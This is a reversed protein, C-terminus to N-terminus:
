RRGEPAADGGAGAALAHILPTDLRLSQSPFAIVIGEAAFRRVISLLVDQRTQMYLAYDPVLMWYVIEYRWASDQIAKLHIRDVRVNPQAAILERLLAPIREATDAATAFEVDLTLVVRRESMRKYNRLRAKLLDSNSFVLQEGTDARIRTTKLGVHEVTGTYSDVNIADGIVFPKDIVISLSAFLDGLINQVALAVAIGGIGLSAVLATVNIGLNDLIFLLMVLWLLLKGIFSLASLSTAAGLDTAAARQRSNAVWYDLLAALWLGIQLLTAVTALKDLTTETKKGLDLYQSGLYVAIFFLLWLKTSRAADVIADDLKTATREAIRSLRRVLLRQLLWAFLLIAVAVGVAVLWDSLPNRVLMHDLRSLYQFLDNM